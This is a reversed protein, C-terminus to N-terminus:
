WRELHDDPNSFEYYTNKRIELKVVDTEEWRIAISLEMICAPWSIVDRAAESVPLVNWRQAFRNQTATQLDKWFVLFMRQFCEKARMNWCLDVSMTQEPHRQVPSQKRLGKGPIIGRAVISYLWLSFWRFFTDPGARRWGAARGCVGSNGTRWEASSRSLSRDEICSFRFVCGRNKRWNVWSNRKGGSAFSFKPHFQSGGSEPDWEAKEESESDWVNWVWVGSLNWDLAGASKVANRNGQFTGTRECIPFWRELRSKPFFASPEKRKCSLYGPRKWIGYEHSQSFWSHLTGELTQESLAEYLRSCIRVRVKMKWEERRRRTFEECYKKNAKNKIKTINWIIIVLKTM